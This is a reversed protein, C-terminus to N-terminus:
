GVRRSRGVEDAHFTFQQASGVYDGMQALLRDAQEAAAHAASSAAPTPCSSQDPSGCGASRKAGVDRPGHCDRLHKADICGESM